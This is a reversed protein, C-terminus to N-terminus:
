INEYNIKIWEPSESMGDANMAGDKFSAEVVVADVVDQLSGGDMYELLLGVSGEDVASFADYFEVVCGAGRHLEQQQLCLHATLERVM